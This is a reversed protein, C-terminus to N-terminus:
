RSYKAMNLPTKLELRRARTTESINRPGLSTNPIRGQAGQVGRASKKQVWGLVKGYRM